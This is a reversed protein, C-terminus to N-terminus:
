MFNTLDISIWYRVSIFIMISLSLWLISSSRPAALYSPRLDFCVAKKCINEFTRGPGQQGDKDDEDDDDEDIIIGDVHDPIRHDVVPGKRPLKQSVFKTGIPPVKCEVLHSTLDGLCYLHLNSFLNAIWIEEGLAESSATFSTKGQSIGVHDHCTIPFLYFIQQHM